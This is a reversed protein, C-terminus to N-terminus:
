LRVAMIRCKLRRVTFRENVWDFDDLTLSVAESTRLGYIACVFLLAKTRAEDPSNGQNSSLLRRVEKWSPGRPAANYRPVRPSRIGRAIRLKTLGREEAFRFFTRLIACQCSMTHLNWRVERKLDLYQDIDQLTLASLEKTSGRAWEFFM